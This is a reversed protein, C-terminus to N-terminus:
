VRHPRHAAGEAANESIGNKKLIDAMERSVSELAQFDDANAAWAEFAKESSDVLSNYDNLNSLLVESIIEGKSPDDVPLYKNSKGVVIKGNIYNNYITYFLCIIIFSSLIIM